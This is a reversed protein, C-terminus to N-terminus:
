VDEDDSIDALQSAAAMSVALQEDATAYPEASRPDAWGGHALM